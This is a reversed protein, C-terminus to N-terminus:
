FIKKPQAMQTCSTPSFQTATLGSGDKTCVVFKSWTAGSFWSFNLLTHLAVDKSGVLPGLVRRNVAPVLEYPRPGARLYLFSQGRITVCEARCLAGGFEIREQRHGTLPELLINCVIRVRSSLLILIARIGKIYLYSALLSLSISRRSVNRPYTVAAPRPVVISPAPASSFM